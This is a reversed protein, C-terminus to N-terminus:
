EPTGSRRLWITSHAPVLRPTEGPSKANGVLSHSTLPGAGHWPLRAQKVQFRASETEVPDQRYPDRSVQSLCQPAIQFCAPAEGGFRSLPRGRTRTRIVWPLRMWCQKGPNSMGSAQRV